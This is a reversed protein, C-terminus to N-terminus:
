HPRERAKLTEIHGELAKICATHEAAVQAARGAFEAAQREARAEVRSLQQKLTEIHAELVVDINRRRVPRRDAHTRGPASPRKCTLTPSNLSLEKNCAHVACM